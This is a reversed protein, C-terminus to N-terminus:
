SMLSPDDFFGNGDVGTGPNTLIGFGAPFATVSAVTFALTGLIGTHRLFLQPHFAHSNKSSKEYTVTLGFLNITMKVVFQVQLSLTIHELVLTNQHFEDVLLLGFLCSSFLQGVLGLGSTVLNLLGPLPAFVSQGLLFFFDQGAISLLFLSCCGGSLFLSKGTRNNRLYM